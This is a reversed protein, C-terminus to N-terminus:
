SRGIELNGVVKGRNKIPIYVSQSNNKIEHSSEVAYAIMDIKKDVEERRSWNSLLYSAQRLKAQVILSLDASTFSEEFNFSSSCIKWILSINSLGVKYKKSAKCKIIALIKPTVLQLPLRLVNEFTLNSTSIAKHSVAKSNSSTASLIHQKVLNKKLGMYEQNLAM